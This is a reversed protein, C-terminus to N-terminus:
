ENTITHTSTIYYSVFDHLIHWQQRGMSSIPYSRDLQNKATEITIDFADSLRACINEKYKIPIVSAYSYGEIDKM